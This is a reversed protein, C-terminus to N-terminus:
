IMGMMGKRKRGKSRKGDMRGEIVGQLLSEGRM